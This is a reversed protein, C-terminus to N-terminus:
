WFLQTRSHSGNDKCLFLDLASTLVRLSKILTEDQMTSYLRIDTHGGELIGQGRERISFGEAQNLTFQPRGQLGEVRGNCGLGYCCGAQPLHSRPGV